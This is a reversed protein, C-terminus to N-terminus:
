THEQKIGIFCVKLLNLTGSSTRVPMYLFNETESMKKATRFRSFFGISGNKKKKKQNLPDPDVVLACRYCTPLRKVPSQITM